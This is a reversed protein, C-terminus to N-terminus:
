ALAKKPRPKPAPMPPDPPDKRAALRLDFKKPPPPPPPDPEGKRALRDFGGATLIGGALVLAAGLAPWSRRRPLHPLSNNM